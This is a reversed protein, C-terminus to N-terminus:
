DKVNRITKNGICERKSNINRCKILCCVNFEDRRIRENLVRLFGSQSAGERRVLREAEQSTIVAPLNLSCMTVQPTVVSNTNSNPFNKAVSVQLIM